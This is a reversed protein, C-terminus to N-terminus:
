NILELMSNHISRWDQSLDISHAKVSFGELSLDVSVPASVTPYLLMGEHRAGEPKTAERNRLYAMLQYLHASQLKKTQHWESMAEQYFKTDLIIRRENSELILDAEMEPSSKLQESDTVQHDWKIKKTPNVQFQDQERRYFEVVFNEFLTALNKTHLEEFRHQGTREDILLQEYILRCVSMLLRYYQRNCDLQVQNFTQRNLTLISIGALKVHAQHVKSRIEDDLTPLRLLNHLTTRLIRNHIVNHSLEQSDCSVRGRPRLARKMTESVNIRGRVGALDERIDLYGRDLGSRVLRFVGETLLLGLLDHVTKLENVDDLSVIDREELNRWVYCYLYYINTIPIKGVKM